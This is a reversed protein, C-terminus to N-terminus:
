SRTSEQERRKADQPVLKTPAVFLEKDDVAIVIDGVDIKNCLRAPSLPILDRM